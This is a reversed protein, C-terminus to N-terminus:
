LALGFHELVQERASRRLVNCAFQEDRFRGRAGMRVFDIGFGIGVIAHVQEIRKLFEAWLSLRDVGRPEDVGGLNKGAADGDERKM